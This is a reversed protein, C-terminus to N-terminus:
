PECLFVDSHPCVRQFHFSIYSLHFIGIHVIFMFILFLTDSVKPSLRYSTGFLMNELVRCTM